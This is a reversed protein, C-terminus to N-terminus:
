SGAGLAKEAFAVFRLAVSSVARAGDESFESHYDANERLQRARELASALERGEDSDGFLERFAVLLCYHSKEAYGKDLVLARGAHFMAYYGTITARKWRAHELMLGVDALDERASRLEAEIVDPGAREFRVLGRRQLCKEFENM